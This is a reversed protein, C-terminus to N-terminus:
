NPSIIIPTGVVDIEVPFKKTPLGKVDCCLTDTFFGCIDNFVTIKIIIEANAAM